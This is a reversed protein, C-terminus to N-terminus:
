QEPDPSPLRYYCQRGSPREVLVELSGGQPGPFTVNFYWFALVLDEQGPRGVALTINVSPPASAGPPLDYALQGVVRGNFRETRVSTAGQADPTRTIRLISRPALRYILTEGTGLPTWRQWAGYIIDVDLAADLLGLALPGPASGARSAPKLAGGGPHNVEDGGGSLDGRQLDDLAYQAANVQVQASLAGSLHGAGLVENSIGQLTNFLITANPPLFFADAALQFGIAALIYYAETLEAATMTAQIAVLQDQLRHAQSAGGEEAIAEGVSPPESGYSLSPNGPRPVDLLAPLTSLYPAGSPSANVMFETFQDIPPLAGSTNAHVLALNLSTAALQNAPSPDSLNLAALGTNPTTFGFSSLQSMPNFPSVTSLAPLNLALAAPGAFLGSAVAMGGVLLHRLRWSARLGRRGPSSAPGAEPATPATAVPDAGEAAEQGEALTRGPASASADPPEPPVAGAPIVGVSLLFACVLRRVGQSCTSQLM